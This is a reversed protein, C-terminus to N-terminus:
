GNNPADKNLLKALSKDLDDPLRSDYTIAALEADDETRRVWANLHNVRTLHHTKHATAAATIKLIEDPAFLRVLRGDAHYLVSEGAQAQVVFRALNAQDHMTLAFREKGKTTKVEVGAYIAATCAAALEALKVEKPTPLGARMAVLSDERHKIGM